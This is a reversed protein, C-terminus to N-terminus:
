ATFCFVSQVTEIRDNKPLLMYSLCKYVSSRKTTLQCKSSNWKQRKQCYCIIKKKKKKHLLMCKCASSKKTTLQDTLIFQKMNLHKEEYQTTYRKLIDSTVINEYGSCQLHLWLSFNCIAKLWFADIASSFVPNSSSLFWLLSSLSVAMASSLAAICLHWISAWSSNFLNESAAILCSLSCCSTILLIFTHLSKTTYSKIKGM